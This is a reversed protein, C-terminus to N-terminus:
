ISLKELIDDKYKKVCFGFGFFKFYFRNEYSGFCFKFGFDINELMLGYFEERKLLTLNPCYFLIFFTNNRNKITGLWSSNFEFGFLNLCSVFASQTLFSLSKQQKKNKKTLTKLREERSEHFFEQFKCLKIDVLIGDTYKAKFDFFYDVLDTTHCAGFDLVGHFKEDILENDKLLYLGNKKITYTLLCNELCKTQFDLEYIDLGYPKELYPLIVEKDIKIHDFMGM